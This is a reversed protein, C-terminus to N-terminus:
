LAALVPGETGTSALALRTFALLRLLFVFDGAFFIARGEAFPKQGGGGESNPFPYVRLSQIFEYGDVFQDVHHRPNGAFLDRLSVVQTSRLAHTAPVAVISPQPFHQTPLGGHPQLLPQGHGKRPDRSLNKRLSRHGDHSGGCRISSSSSNSRDPLSSTLM